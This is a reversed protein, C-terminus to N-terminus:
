WKERPRLSVAFFDREDPTLYRDAPRFMEPLLNGPGAAGPRSYSIFSTWYVNAPAQPGDNWRVIDARGDRYEVV